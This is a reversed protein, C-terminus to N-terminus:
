KIKTFQIDKVQSTISRDIFNYIVMENEKATSYLFKRITEDKQFSITDSSTNYSWGDFYFHKKISADETFVITDSIGDFLEPNKEIWTGIIKDKSPEPEDESCGLGIMFVSMTLLLNIMKMDNLNQNNNHVTQTKRQM